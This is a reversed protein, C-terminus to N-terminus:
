HSLCSNSVLNLMTLFLPYNKLWKLENENAFCEGMINVLTRSFKIVTLICLLCHSEVTNLSASSAPFQLLWISDFYVRRKTFHMTPSKCTPGSLAPFITSINPVLTTALCPCFPIRFSQHHSLPLSTTGSSSLTKFGFGM